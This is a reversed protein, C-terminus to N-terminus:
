CSFQKFLRVNDAERKAIRIRVPSIGRNCLKTASKVDGHTDASNASNVSHTSHWFCPRYKIRSYTLTSGFPTSTSSFM